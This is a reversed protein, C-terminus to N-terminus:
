SWLEKLLMDMWAWENLSPDLIKDVWLSWNDNWRGCAFLARSYEWYSPYWGAFEWDVIVPDYDYIAQGGDDIHLHKRVMINKRQFDGHSFVPPHGHLVSRFARKYFDAKGQPLNNFLYKRIMADNLETETQFPGAITNDGTWFVNDPLPRQSLSCYGGPSQLKRMEDLAARLKDAIVDKQVHSLLSWELDLSEGAIREMVIYAKHSESDKFLAYIRPVPVSTAQQIFLMVEGEKLDVALGYKVVFHRGVGVVKRSTQDCLVDSSREIEEVTPLTAPISTPDAYYPASIPPMFKNVHHNPPVAHKAHVFCVSM